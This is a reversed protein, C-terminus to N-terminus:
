WRPRAGDDHFDFASETEVRGIALQLLKAIVDLAANRAGPLQSEDLHLPPDRRGVGNRDGAVLNEIREVLGVVEDQADDLKAIVVGMTHVVEAARELALGIETSAPDLERARLLQKEAEAHVDKAAGKDRKLVRGRLQGPDRIYNQEEQVKTAVWSLLSRSVSRASISSPETVGTMSRTQESGSTGSAM